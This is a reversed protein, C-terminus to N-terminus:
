DDQQIAEEKYLRVEEPTDICSREHKDLMCMDKDDWQDDALEIAQEPNDAKVIVYWENVERVRVVYKPM